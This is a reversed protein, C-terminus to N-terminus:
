ISQPMVGFNIRTMYADLEGETFEERWVSDLNCIEQMLRHAGDMDSDVRLTLNLSWSDPEWLDTFEVVAETIQFPAIERATDFIQRLASERFPTLYPKTEPLFNIKNTHTLPKNAVM